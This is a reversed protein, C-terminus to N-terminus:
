RAQGPATRATLATSLLIVAGVETTVALAVPTPFGAEQWGFLGHGYSV